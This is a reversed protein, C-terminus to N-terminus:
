PTTEVTDIVRIEFTRLAVRLETSTLLLEGQYYSGSSGAKVLVRIYLQGTGVQVVRVSAEAVMSAQAAGADTVIFDYSKLEEYSDQGQYDGRARRSFELSVPIYLLIQDAIQKSIIVRPNAAGPQEPALQLVRDPAEPTIYGTIASSPSFASIGTSKGSAGYYLWALGHESDPGAWGDIELTGVQNTKNFSALDFTLLTVGDADTVRIDEGNTDVNDWLHQLTTPLSITVDNAGTTGTRDVSIPLRHPWDSHYWSM